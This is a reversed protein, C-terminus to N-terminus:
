RNSLSTITGAVVSEVALGVGTLVILYVAIGVGPAPNEPATLVYYGAALFLLAIAVGTVLSSLVGSLFGDSVYGAVMGSPIGVLLIAAEETALVVTTSVLFAVLGAGVAKWPRM